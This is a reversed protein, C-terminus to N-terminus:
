NKRDYHMNRFVVAQLLNLKLSITTAATNPIQACCECSLLTLALKTTRVHCELVHSRPTIAIKEIEFSGQLEVL